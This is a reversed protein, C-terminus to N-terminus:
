CGTGFVQNSVGIAEVNRTNRHIPCGVEVESAVVRADEWVRWDEEFTAFINTEVHSYLCRGDILRVSIFQSLNAYCRLRVFVWCDLVVDDGERQHVDNVADIQIGRVAHCINFLSLCSQEGDGDRVCSVDVVSEHEPVRVTQLPLM